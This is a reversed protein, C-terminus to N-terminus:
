AVVSSKRDGATFQRLYSVITETNEYNYVPSPIIPTSTIELLPIGADDEKLQFMIVEGTSTWTMGLKAILKGHTQDRLRVKHNRVVSLAKECLDFVADSSSHFLLTKKFSAESNEFMARTVIAVVGGVIVAAVVGSMVGVVIGSRLSFIVGNAVGAALGISLAVTRNRDM